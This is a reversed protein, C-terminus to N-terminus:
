LLLSKLDEDVSSITQLGFTDVLVSLVNKSIFAPLTPGIRINKIGSALLALLVTVAKQEYWAVNFVIPLENVGQVGLADALAKAVIIWSYNDNCQGADLVRPIGGIDGLGLKNYRYKACGGTLIITDEPLKQAYETYYRRASMRGDCGGMVVFRKICGSKIGEVIKDLLGVVQQHAFGGVIEGNELQEPPRCTKAVAIVESFDKHGNANTLIHKCGPYGTSNTTFMMSSYSENLAPPVICNTTFIIPGHFKPFEEKQRWWANGYNGVFHSYKKFAPYYNGPLMESHTYVDVGTGETQQLLESLDKLDHGTILIGPNNRTGTSVKTVEPHGFASTNAKDLLAMAELCRKGVALMREQWAHLDLSADSLDALISEMFVYITNDEVGLRAAHELYAAMGKLGYVCIQQLSRLDVDAQSLVGALAAAREDEPAITVAAVDPITVSLEKARQILRSKLEVGNRLRQEISGEDFNANTITSFLADLMFREVEEKVTHGANRLATSVVCVGRLEFLLLDMKNALSGVKGCVGKITCGTGKATEQCQYCFMM